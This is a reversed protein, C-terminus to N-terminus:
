MPWLIYKNVQSTSLHSSCLMNVMGVEAYSIADTDDNQYIPDFSVTGSEEMIEYNRQSYIIYRKNYECIKHMCARVNHVSFM